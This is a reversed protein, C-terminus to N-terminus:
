PSSVPLTQIYEVIWSVLEDYDWLVEYGSHEPAYGHRDILQWFVSNREDPSMGLWLDALDESLADHDVLKGIERYLDSDLYQNWSEYVEEYELDSVDSEDYIPYDVKLGVLIEILDDSLDNVFAGLAEINSYHINTWVDPYDAMLRRFNSRSLTSSQGFRCEGKATDEFSIWPETDADLWEILDSPRLYGFEAADTRNAQHVRTTFASSLADLKETLDM